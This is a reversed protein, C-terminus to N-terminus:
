VFTSDFAGSGGGASNKARGGVICSHEPSRTGIGVTGSLTFTGNRLARASSVLTVGSM